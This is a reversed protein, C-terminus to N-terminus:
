LVSSVVTNPTKTQVTEVIMTEMVSGDRLSVDVVQQYVAPDSAMRVSTAQLQYYRMNNKNDCLAKVFRPM